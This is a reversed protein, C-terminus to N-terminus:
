RRFLSFLLAGIGLAGAGAAVVTVPSPGSGPAAPATGSAGRPAPLQGQIFGGQVVDPTTGPTFYSDPPTMPCGPPYHSGDSCVANGRADRMCNLSPDLSPSAIPCPIQQVTQGMQVQHTHALPGNMVPYGRMNYITGYGNPNSDVAAAAAAEAARKRKKRQGEKCKSCGLMEDASRHPEGCGLVDDVDSTQRVLYYGNANSPDPIVAEREEMAEGCGLAKEHETMCKPCKWVPARGSKKRFVDGGSLDGSVGALAQFPTRTFFHSSTFM